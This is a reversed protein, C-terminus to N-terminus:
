IAVRRKREREIKANRISIKKRYSLGWKATSFFVATLVVSSIAEFDTTPTIRMPVALVVMIAAATCFSIYTAATILDELDIKMISILMLSAWFSLCIPRVIEAYSIGYLIGGLFGAFPGDTVQM